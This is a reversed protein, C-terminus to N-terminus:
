KIKSVREEETFEIDEMNVLLLEEVKLASNNIISIYLNEVFYEKLTMQLNNDESIDVNHLFFIMSNEFSEITFYVKDVM